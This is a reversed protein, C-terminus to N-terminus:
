RHSNLLIFLRGANQLPFIYDVVQRGLTEVPEGLIRGGRLDAHIDCIQPSCPAGQLPLKSVRASIM